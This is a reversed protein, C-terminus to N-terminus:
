QIDISSGGSDSKKVIKPNGKCNVHSAGSAEADISETAYVDAHSAGSVRIDARQAMLNDADLKSAGSADLKITRCTGDLEAKSAGNLEVAFLGAVNVDMDAQGAGSLRLSLEPLVLPSETEVRCAGSAVLSRISDTSVFVKIKRNFFIGDSYIRLVGAEVRTTIKSLYEKPATVVVKRTSDQKVILEINGSIDISHFPACDRIEDQMPENKDSWVLSWNKSNQNNLKILANPGISYFMFLGALWLIFVVWSATRSTEQRGSALRIGWYVLLFIPCGVVLILSIILLVAKEPTIVMWNSILDPAFGNFAAPEFILVFLVFFLAAVLVLGVFGLVAGIFGFLIKFSWRIIELLREGVSNASQKFKDSEIYNKVNNMETKINEVTVDEGQMELRQSATVAPPAVLWVVIYIPIIVGFGIFVLIVLLIRILTVDWGFYAAIGGAVGGLIANEPDRYFRRSKQQKKEGKSTEEEEDGDTFQSPKGMIEIIEQVDQLTVVNKNKQLKETFLEAIRAEIDTMIEKKEEDSDFHRAIESLYIQLMEYADDDINFVINNLNVTLTKKM